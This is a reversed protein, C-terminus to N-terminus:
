LAMFPFLLYPTSDCGYELCARVLRGANLLGRSCYLHKKVKGLACEWGVGEPLSDPHGVQLSHQPSCLGTKCHIVYGVHGQDM